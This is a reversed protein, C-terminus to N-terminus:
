RRVLLVVGLLVAVGLGVFMWGSGGSFAVQASAVPRAETQDNQTDAAQAAANAAAVNGVVEVARGAVNGAQTTLTDLWDFVGAM